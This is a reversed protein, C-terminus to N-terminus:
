RLRAAVEAVIERFEGLIPDAGGHRAYVLAIRSVPLGRALKVIRVGGLAAHQRAIPEPAISLFRSSGAVIALNSEFSRAEIVPVIPGARQVHLFREFSARSATDSTPLVWPLRALAALSAASTPVATNRKGCIVVTREEFSQISQICKLIENRVEADLQGVSEHASFFSDLGHIAKTESIKASFPPLDRMLERMFAAKHDSEHKM